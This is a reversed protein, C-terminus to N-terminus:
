QCGPMGSACLITPAINVHAIGTGKAGASDVIVVTIDLPAGLFLHYDTGDADLQYRLGALKCFGGQDPDFTFVVATQPAMLGTTPQVASITTRSGSQKLNEQRVAVWVHHGGQPGQEAVVTDGNALPLYDSQGTGVQVVPPGANMPKCIDPTNTAWDSSYAELGSVHDDQCVGAICTQPASCSPAGPPGGPLPLLCQGQLLVRLLMTHGPVFSTEATRVLLPTAGVATLYGEVRVGIAASVNGGPPALKVDLPLAGMPFTADTNAAGGLTTTVRVTDLAGAGPESEIGVVVVTEQPARKEPGPSSCAPAALLVPLFRCAARPTM